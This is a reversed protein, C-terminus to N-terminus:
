VPRKHWKCIALCRTMMRIEWLFVPYGAVKAAQQWKDRVTPDVAWGYSGDNAVLGQELTKEFQLVHAWTGGPLGILKEFNLEVSALILHSYATRQQIGGVPNGQFVGVYTLSPTIGIDTLTAFERDVEPGLGLLKVPKQIAEPPVAVLRVATVLLVLFGAYRATM